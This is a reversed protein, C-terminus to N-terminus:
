RSSDTQTRKPAPSLEGLSPPIDPFRPTSDISLGDPMIIVDTPEIVYGIRGQLTTGIHAIIPKGVILALGLRGCTGFGYWLSLSGLM